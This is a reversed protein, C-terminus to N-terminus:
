ATSPAGRGRRLVLGLAGFGALMVVWGAPEPTPSAVYAFLNLDQLQPQGENVVRDVAYYGEGISWSSDTSFAYARGVYGGIPPGFTGFIIDRYPAQGMIAAYDSWATGGLPLTALLDQVETINAVTFGAGTAAAFMENPTQGLFTDLRLWEYGTTDDTFTAYGGIVPGASIAAEAAGAAFTAAALAMGIVAARRGSQQLTWM